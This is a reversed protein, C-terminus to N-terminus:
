PQEGESTGPGTTREPRLAAALARLRPAEFHTDDLWTLVPQAAAADAAQTAAELVLRADWAEHQVAWSSLALALAQKADGQALWLRAEERQHVTDGRLRSAAFGARAKALAPKDTQELRLEALAERLLLADDTRHAQVLQRAERARGTDLLLDAYLARTYRDGADIALAAHLHRESAESAGSWYAIEGALSHLYAQDRPDRAHRLATELAARAQTAAGTLAQIPALCAVQLAEPVLSVLAECSKRAEAYRGLVTLVTARTLWAQAQMPQQELARELDVLAGGFDHRSQLVTARLLRVEAVPDRVSTFPLLAAEAAGLYRPDGERRSAEIYARALALARDRDAPAQAARKHLAELRQVDADTRAPVRAVVQPDRQPRAVQRPPQYSAALVLILAVSVMLLVRPAVRSSLPSAALTSM